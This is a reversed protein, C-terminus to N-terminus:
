ASHGDLRAAGGAEAQDLSHLLRHAMAESLLECALVSKCGTHPQFPLRVAREGLVGAEEADGYLSGGATAAWFLPGTLMMCSLHSTWASVFGLAHSLISDGQGGAEADAYSSTLDEEADTPAWQHQQEERLRLKGLCQPFLGM